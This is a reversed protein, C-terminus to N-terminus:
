AYLKNLLEQVFGRIFHLVHHVRILVGHGGHEGARAVHDARVSLEEVHGHGPQRLPHRIEDHVGQGIRSDRGGESRLLYLCPEAFLTSYLDVIFELATPVPQPNPSANKDRM